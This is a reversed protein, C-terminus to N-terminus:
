QQQSETDQRFNLLRFPFRLFTVLLNIPFLFFTIALFRWIEPKVSPLIESNFGPLAFEMAGLLLLVSGALNYVFIACWVARFWTEAQKCGVLCMAAIFGALPISMWMFFQSPALPEMLENPPDLPSDGIGDSWSM